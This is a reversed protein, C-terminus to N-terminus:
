RKLKQETSGIFIREVHGGDDVWAEAGLPPRGANDRLGIADYRFRLDGFQVVHLARDHPSLDMEPHVDGAAGADVVLPFKSWDLYVQGLWSARAAQTYLTIPPKPYVQQTDVLGTRTEITASQFNLPTEVVLHWRYPNIPYPDLSTRLVAGGRYEQGNAQTEADGRQLIRYGWLGVMLVLAAIALGQGDHRTRRIGIERHVLSLLLPLLLAAGLFLWLLPEAIYIIGGAYWHPNFPAFPRVGYNNTWDLLIHSLLALLVVGSLLPWNTEAPEYSRKRKWSRRTSHLLWFAGVVLATQVPLSWLAHTWGRHHQFYVLPGGLRYIYDADPLEAAIVCAATAYRVREPLGLARSLCAGTLM